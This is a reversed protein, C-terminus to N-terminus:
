NGGALLAEPNLGALEQPVFLGDKRILEGDFWIEGGGWEARQITVMDWHVESRNGNDAVDYANGPTLHFSGAIKEDFLIDRMPALVYPNFGLSWEGIYRAGEDSDLIQNLRETNSSSAETIKGAQFTLRINEFATGAYITPANFAITGEVSDLVPCTFCEGDPINRQGFCPIVPIGRISFNLETGPGVIRVRDARLMRDVLPECAKAMGSYDLTCVNFYFEEFAETSMSAQQAMSATPWRLVVWRTGTVRQEIHVPQWWHKQYLKMQSVPVDFFESINHSGRIGIYAQVEQMRHLEVAGILKM